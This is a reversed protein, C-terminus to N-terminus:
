SLHIITAGVEVPSQKELKIDPFRDSNAIIIPTIVEYGEAKIADIDFRILLDGRQVRDGVKISSDFHRGKLNVTDVGIHILLEEGNYGNLKVAHKSDMFATVEGAIPAYLEGKAPIIAAGKGLLGMSFVDDPVRDLHVLEGQMPSTITLPRLENQSPVNANTTAVSQTDPTNDKVHQGSLTKDDNVISNGEEEDDVPDEFGIIWTLAFTVIFAILCTVIAHVINMPNSGIFAPLAALGPSVFAYRVLGTLGAYIGAVGGGIMAAILPKKLKLTVGYLSPETIGLVATFGSSAALQKLKKNKTKLAVALTAGGQAINSALMGPGNIMEYGNKTLQSTAIPTMAWATGTVILFPQLTGMLLPILWSARANIAEAGMAVLDNLYTGFPGIAVLALPATILLVIMPKTFFKIMSPSVRDAFREIYSMLWVVIIIPLVSGAYDTLRVPVGIFFVDKGEAMLASWGPHLLVGAVTMALIPSTEFKISAGYALLIPMFYFAADAITNLIYYNQSETTVLGTLVLVALIAKIMGAGIIAPIVPTFTTSIVSIFRSIWSQKQKPRKNEGSDSTTDASRTASGMQQTIVRYVQQVENGVVVQYQGGNNVVTIVGPLAKLKETEAKSIDHLEFRLRTACHTLRAINDKRGVLETIEQGLKRYDM